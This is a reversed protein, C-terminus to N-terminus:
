RSAVASLIEVVAVALNLDDLNHDQDYIRRAFASLVCDLPLDAAIAIKQGRHRVKDAALDDYISEGGEGEVQLWRTKDILTSFVFDALVPGFRMDLTVTQGVGGGVSRQEAVRASVQDPPGGMLALGMAVDHPGWDWLVSADSRYPGHNGARGSIRKLRGLDPLLGRLTAFAPSYLHIHDVMVLGQKAQVDDRFSRAEAPDLCLPKEVLVALGREVARRAIAIHTRPPTAVIVGDLGPHDLLDPWQPYLTCGDPLLAATESNSSAVAALVLDSRRALTRLYIRGWRGAGVLGLRLPARM